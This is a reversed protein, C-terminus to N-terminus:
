RCRNLLDGPENSGFKDKSSTFATLSKKFLLHSPNTQSLNALIIALNHDVISRILDRKKLGESKVM